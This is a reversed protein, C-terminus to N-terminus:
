LKTIDPHGSGVYKMHMHETQSQMNFKESMKRGPYVFSHFQYSISAVIANLMVLSM